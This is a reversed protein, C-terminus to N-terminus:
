ICVHGFLHSLLLLVQQKQRPGLNREVVVHCSVVTHTELELLDLHRRAELVVLGARPVYM